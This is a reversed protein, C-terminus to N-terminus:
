AAIMQADALQQSTLSSHFRFAEALCLNRHRARQTHDFRHDWTDPHDAGILPAPQPSVQPSPDGNKGHEHRLPSSAPFATLPFSPSATLWCQGDWTKLRGASEEWPSGIAAPKNSWISYHNPASSQKLVRM